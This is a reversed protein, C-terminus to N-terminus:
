FENNSAVYIQFAVVLDIWATEDNFDINLVKQIKKLRYYLTNSHIHLNKSTQKHNRNTSIFMQLTKIYSPDLTTLAHLKDNMFLVLTEDDVEYLLREIGLMSYEVHTINHQRAYGISRLAEEFSLTLQDITTKRGIGYYIKHHYLLEIEQIIQQIIGTRFVPVIIILQLARTFILPTLRMNKTIQEISQVFQEKDILKQEDWLPFQKGELILCQVNWDKKWNIYSIAQQLDRESIRDILQNFVTERFHIEKEFVTNNKILELAISLSAQEIALQDIHPFAAIPKKLELCGLVENGRVIPFLCDNTEDYRSHFHVYSDILKELLQLVYEMGRGEIIFKYFQNHISISKKLLENKEKVAQYVKANDIAIASQDAITEIVQMDEKTFINDKSFNDVVVVGYCKNKNIIPVCFASKIKRHLVGQSYYLFNDHQMNNMFFDIESESTFLKSKKDVFVKGTISEGPSFAVKKLAIKDIGHGEALYLKDTKEDYLYIILVDSVDILEKASMILNQLVEDLQLSETLVKNIHLLKKMKYINM